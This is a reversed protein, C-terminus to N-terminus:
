TRHVQVCPPHQAVTNSTGTSVHEIIRWLADHHPNPPTPITVNPACMTSAVCSHQKHGHVCARHYAVICWPPPQTPIPITVNPSSACMTSAINNSTWPTFVHWTWTTESKPFVRFTGTKGLRFARKLAEAELDLTLCHFFRISGIGIPMQVHFM